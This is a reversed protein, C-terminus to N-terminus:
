SLGLADREVQALATRTIGFVQRIQRKAVGVLLMRRVLEARDKTLLLPTFIDQDGIQGKRGQRQVEAKTTLFLHDPNVCRGNGCKPSVYLGESVPGNHQEWAVRNLLRRKGRRTIRVLGTGTSPQHSVVLHCGGEAVQYLVVGISRLKKLTREELLAPTAEVFVVDGTSTSPKTAM